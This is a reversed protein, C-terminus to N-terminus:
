RPGVAKDGEWTYFGKGSKRGFEGAKVKDVLSQPIIFAPENPFDVKWGQLISLVTDLGVYDALQIPGMPHGAGLQMSVDIDGITAVGRDLMLLAQGMYPVLLRNVIFGPTDPCRVTTKGIKKGFDVVKNFIDKDTHETHIVEVLKMLQVPNFFHLGVFKDPRKSALAMSTIQLSSTNSAFITNPSSIEGLNKYFKIKLDMNEVIAEIIMDCGKTDELKTTTSIRSMVKAFEAKGAEETLKGKAVDKSIVKSLSNNIRKMGADLAAQQMEVAVVDFGAQATVQAVGHGMLGLGVVAVRKIEASFLRRGFSSSSAVGRAVILAKSLGSMM